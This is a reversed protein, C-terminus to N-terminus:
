SADFLCSLLSEVYCFLLLFSSFNLTPWHSSEAPFPWGLLRLDILPVWIPSSVRALQGRIKVYVCQPVFGALSCVCVCVCLKFLYNIFSFSSM